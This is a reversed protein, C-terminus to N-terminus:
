PIFVLLCLPLSKQLILIFTCSNNRFGPLRIPPPSVIHFIFSLRFMCAPTNLLTFIFSPVHFFTRAAYEFFYQSLNFSSQTIQTHLHLYDYLSFYVSGSFLIKKQYVVCKYIYIKLEGLYMKREKEKKSYCCIIKATWTYEDEVRKVKNISRIPLIFYIHVKRKPSSNEDSPIIHKEKSLKCVASTLPVRTCIARAM